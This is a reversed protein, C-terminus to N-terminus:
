GQLYNCDLEVGWSAVLGVAPKFLGCNPLNEEHCGDFHCKALYCETSHVEDFILCGTISLLINQLIVM